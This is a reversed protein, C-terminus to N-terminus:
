AEMGDSVAGVVHCEGGELAGLLGAHLLEGRKEGLELGACVGVDCGGVGGAVADFMGLDDGGAVEVSEGAQMDNGGHLGRVQESIHVPCFGAEAGVTDFIGVSPTGEEVVVDDQGEAGVVGDLRDVWEATEVGGDGALVFCSGFRVLWLFFDSEVFRDVGVGLGGGKSFILFLQFAAELRAVNSIEDYEVVVNGRRGDSWLLEEM